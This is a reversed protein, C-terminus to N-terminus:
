IVGLASLRCLECGFKPRLLDVGCDSITTCNGKDGHRIDLKSVLFMELEELHSRVAEMLFSTKSRSTSRADCGVVTVFIFRIFDFHQFHGM